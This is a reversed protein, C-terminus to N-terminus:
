DNIGIDIAVEIAGANVSYLYYLILFDLGVSTIGYVVFHFCCYSNKVLIKKVEIVVVFNVVIFVSFVFLEGYCNLDYGEVNIERGLIADEFFIYHVGSVRKRHSDVYGRIVVNDSRLILCLHLFVVRKLMKVLM